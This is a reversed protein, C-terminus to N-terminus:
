AGLSEELFPLRYAAVKVNIWQDYNGTSAVTLVAGLHDKETITIPLSSSSETEVQIFSDNGALLEWHLEKSEGRKLRVKSESYVSQLLLKEIPSARIDPEVPTAGFAVQPAAVLWPAVGEGGLPNYLLDFAIFNAGADGLQTRSPMDVVFSERKWQGTGTVVISNLVGNASLARVYTTKGAPGKIFVSFSVKQGAMFTTSHLFTRLGAHVPTIPITVEIAKPCNAFPVDDVLRAELMGTRDPATWLQFNPAVLLSRRGDAAGSVRPPNPLLLNRQVNLGANFLQNVIGLRTTGQVTASNFMAGAQTFRHYVEGTIRDRIQIEDGKSFDMILNNPRNGEKVMGSLVQDGHLRLVQRANADLDNVVAPYWNIKNNDSYVGFCQVTPDWFPEGIVPREGAPLGISASYIRFQIHPTAM